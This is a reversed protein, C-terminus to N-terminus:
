PRAADQLMWRLYPRILSQSYSSCSLSLSAVFHSHPFLVRNSIPSPLLLVPLPHISRRRRTVVVARQRVRWGCGRKDGSTIVNAACVVLRSLHARPLLLVVGASSDLCHLRDSGKTSKPSTQALPLPLPPRNPTPNSRRSRLKPPPPPRRRKPDHPVQVCSCAAFVCM